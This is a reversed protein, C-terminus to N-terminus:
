GAPAIHGLRWWVAEFFPLFFAVRRADFFASPVAHALPNESTRFRQQYQYAVLAYQSQHPTRLLRSQRTLCKPSLAISKDIEPFFPM